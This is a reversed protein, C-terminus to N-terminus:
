DRWLSRLIHMHQTYQPEPSHSVLVVLTNTSCYDGTRRYMRVRLLPLCAGYRMNLECILNRTLRAQYDSCYCALLTTSSMKTLSLSQTNYENLMMYPSAYNITGSSADGLDPDSPTGSTGSVSWVSTTSTNYQLLSCLAYDSSGSYIYCAIAVSESLDMVNIYKTTGNNLQVTDNVIVYDWYGRRDQPTTSTSTWATMEALRLCRAMCARVQESDLGRRLLGDLGGASATEVLCAAVYAVVFAQVIRLGMGMMTSGKSREALERM